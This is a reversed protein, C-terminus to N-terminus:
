STQFLQIAVTFIQQDPPVNCESIPRDAMCSVAPGPQWAVSVLALKNDLEYGSATGTPGDALYTPNETWGQSVFVNRITQAADVFNGFDEGTGTATVTCATGHWGGIESTLDGEAVEMEVALEAAIAASIAECEAADVPAVASRDPSTPAEESPVPTATATGADAPTSPTSAPPQIATCATLAAAVLAGLLLRNFNELKM